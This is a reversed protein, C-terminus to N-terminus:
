ACREKLAAVIRGTHAEWTYNALAEQWAADGLRARLEANEYLTKLGRMLDDTNGPKVMWATRNHELVEGIQDLNSAVIAKGMAMYEFLKTPSGFFPTGDANPVHPSALIDCAALYKAGEHQPVSGTLIAADGVDFKELASEVEKRKAGDGILLLRVRNRMDPYTKLLMGFAEALKEAGHWPGFTGIFGIVTQNELLYKDRVAKGSVTPAYREPDVGNPNVLVKAADIGREILEAKMPQSVVVIVDAARLNLMEIKTSLAEYALGAGWNRNIWIDSGNYELVFPLHLTRALKVGSYNDLGYRQYIFGVNKGQLIELARYYFVETFHLAPLQAFDQFVPPPTIVCTPITESVTPIIDTTLLMPRGCFRHLNNAVGAIHGISGGSTIGFWLDTRLYVPMAQLDLERAQTNGGRSGESLTDVENEIRKLVASRRSMDRFCQATLGFLASLTLPKQQGQKDQFVCPGRSLFRLLWAAFTPKPISHLSDAFLVAHPYRFLRKFYTGSRVWGKVDAYSLALDEAPIQEPRSVGSYLVIKAPEAM